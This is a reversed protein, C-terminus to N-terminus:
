AFVEAEALPTGVQDKSSLMPAGDIPWAIGIAPDNWLITREFQPAWYDTNATSQIKM